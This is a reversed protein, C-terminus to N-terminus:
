SGLMSSMDLRGEALFCISLMISLAVLVSLIVRLVSGNINKRTRNFENQKPLFRLNIGNLFIYVHVTSSQIRHGQRDTYIYIM